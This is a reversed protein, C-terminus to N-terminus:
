LSSSPLEPRAPSVAVAQILEGLRKGLRVSKCIALQLTPMAIGVRNEVGGYTVVAEGLVMGVLFMRGDKAWLLPAGSSGEPFPTSVEYVGPRSPLREFGRTTIVYGKYSRFVVDLRNRGEEQTLAHPYGFRSVDDLSHM